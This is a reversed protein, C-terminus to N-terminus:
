DLLLSSLNLNLYSISIKFNFHVWPQPYADSEVAGVDLMKLNTSENKRMTQLHKVLWTATNNFGKRQNHLSIKQYVRLLSPSDIQRTKLSIESPNQSLSDHHHNSNNIGGELVQASKNLAHINGIFKAGRKDKGRDLIERTKEVTVSQHTRKKRSM